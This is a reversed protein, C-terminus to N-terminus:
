QGIVSNGPAIGPNNGGVLPRIDSFDHHGAMTIKFRESDREYSRGAALPFITGKILIEPLNFVSANKL